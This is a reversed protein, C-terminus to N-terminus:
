EAFAAEAVGSFKGRSTNEMNSIELPDHETDIDSPVSVHQDRRTLSGVAARELPPNGGM